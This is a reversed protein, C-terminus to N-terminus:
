QFAKHHRPAHRFMLRVRTLLSYISRLSERFPSRSPSRNHVYPRLPNPALSPPLSSPLGQAVPTPSPPAFLSAGKLSPKPPTVLSLLTPNNFKNEPVAPWV